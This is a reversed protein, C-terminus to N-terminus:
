LSELLSSPCKSNILAQLVTHSTKAEKVFLTKYHQETMLVREICQIKESCM